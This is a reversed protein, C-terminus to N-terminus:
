DSMLFVSQPYFTARSRSLRMRILDNLFVNKENISTKASLIKLSLGVDLYRHPFSYCALYPPLLDGSVMIERVEERTYTPLVIYAQESRRNVIGGATHHEAHLRVVQSNTSYGRVFDSLQRNLKSLDSRDLPIRCATRDSLIVLVFDRLSQVEQGISRPDLKESTLSQRQLMRELEVATLHSVLHRWSSLDLNPDDLEVIQALIDGIRLQNFARWRSVGDLIIHEGTDLRAVAIPNRQRGDISIESALRHVSSETVRSLPRLSGTPLIRLPHWNPEM